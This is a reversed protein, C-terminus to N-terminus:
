KRLPGDRLWGIWGMVEEEPREQLRVEIVAPRRAALAAELVGKFSGLDEVREAPM